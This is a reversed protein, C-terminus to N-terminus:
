RWWWWGAGVALMVLVAIGLQKRKIPNAFWPITFFLGNRVALWVGRKAHMWQIMSRQGSVVGEWQRVSEKHFQAIAQSVNTETTHTGFLIQALSVGDALAMNAGAGAFPSVPHWSDGIFVVNSLQQQHPMKDYCSVAFADSSAIMKEVWELYPKPYYKVLAALSERFSASSTVADRPVPFHWASWCDNAAKM